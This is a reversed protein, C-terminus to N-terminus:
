FEVNSSGGVVYRSIVRAIAALPREDRAMEEFISLDNPLHIVYLVGDRARVWFDIYDFRSPDAQFSINTLDRVVELRNGPLRMEYLNMMMWRADIPQLESM